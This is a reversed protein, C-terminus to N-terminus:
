WQNPRTGNGKSSYNGYKKCQFQISKYVLNEPFKNHENKISKNFTTILSSNHKVFVTKQETQYQKFLEDFDEFTKFIAGVTFLEATAMNVSLFFIGIFGVVLVRTM